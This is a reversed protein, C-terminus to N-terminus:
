NSNPDRCSMRFAYLSGGERSNRTELVLFNSEELQSVLKGPDHSPDRIHWKMLLCHINALMENKYLSNIIEYESGECDIKMVINRDPFKQEIEKMVDSVNRIEIEEIDCNTDSFGTPLGYISSLRSLEFLYNTRIKKNIGGLGYQNTIIRDNLDNNLKVNSVAQEFTMKFPEFGVVIVNPNKAFFLASFGVNMGVDLVVTPHDITINYLNRFFIKDIIDLDGDTSIFAEIGDIDVLIKGNDDLRFVANCENKLRYAFEIGRFFFLHQKRNLNMDMDKLRILGTKRSYDVYSKQIGAKLLILAIDFSHFILLFNLIDVLRSIMKRTKVM